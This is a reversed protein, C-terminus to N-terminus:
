YRLRLSMHPTIRLTNRTIEEIENDESVQYFINYLNERNLINWVSIGLEGKVNAISFSYKGSVDLRIYERLRSSNPAEYVIEGLENLQDASPQTYPRGSRYNFGGSFEFNKHTYSGGVSLSHRVDLNNPFISPTLEPFLYNNRALTYTAWSNANKFRKNVLVEVGRAYYNGTSYVYEFQNQFGQSPTIIGIVEKIFGEVSFLFFQRSYQIGTSLQQSKILPVSNNNSLVWRRKEIGLFDNQYDILQTTHQTKREALAELSFNASLQYNVAIRPEFSFLNFKTYYNSRLGARVYLHDLLENFETETFLSHIRLVDKVARSYNPMRINDANSIGVEKFHYGSHLEVKPNIKINSELKGGWELVENDQFHYQDDSISINSGNLSYSSPYGSVDTTHKESWTRTYKLNSLLNSQMLRSERTYLTDRTNANVEYLIDNRNHLVSLRIKDKDSPDYMMKVSVDYFSFDHSTEFTTDNGARTLMFETHEFARNYYSKYTPTQVLNNTSHRAGLIVSLRKGVPVKAIVDASLMDVGTSIEFDNVPYDQQQMDITGSIGEDYSASTGNKIVKTRHILHSNFASILGFFHGTQYMKVGDWLVLNQDNTGGRTTIESVSENISHVGPLIQIVQLVDPQTLGPLIELNQMNLRIAGDSLKQIGRSIYDLRVEKLEQIDPVLGFVSADPFWRDQRLLLPHYGIHRITIVSDKELNVKLSFSGDADSVTHNNGAYVFAAALKEGTSRDTITGSVTMEPSAHQIAIYRDSIKTFRLNTQHELHSLISELTSDKRPLTVFLGEINANAYTFVVDFRDELYILARDLPETETTQAFTHNSVISFLLLAVIAYRNVKM